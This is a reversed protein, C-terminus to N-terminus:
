ASPPVTRLTLSEDPRETRMSFASETVMMRAPAVVYANNHNGRMEMGYADLCNAFPTYVDATEAPLEVRVIGPCDDMLRGILEDRLTRNNCVAIM